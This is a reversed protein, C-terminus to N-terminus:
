FGTIGSVSTPLGGVSGISKLSGDGEIEYEDIAGAGSAVVYLYRDDRSTMMDIPHPDTTAIPGPGGMRSLSGTPSLKYGTIANSGADAVYALRSNSTLTIWCGATQNTPVKASQVSLSDAAYLYSSTSSADAIGGAANSVVLTNLFGFAFGFPSSGASAVTTRPGLRGEWQVPFLDIMNTNEETVVVVSGSPSIGVQKAGPAAQSLGKVSGAIPRLGSL